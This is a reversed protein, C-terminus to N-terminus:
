VRGGRMEREERRERWRVRGGRGEEGEGGGGPSPPTGYVGLLQGEQLLVFRLPLLHGAFHHLTNNGHMAKTCIAGDLTSWQTDTDNM